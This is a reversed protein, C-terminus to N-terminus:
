IASSQENCWATGEVVTATKKKEHGFNGYGFCLRGLGAVRGMVVRLMIM